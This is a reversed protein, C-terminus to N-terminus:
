SSAHVTKINFIIIDGYGVQKPILWPLKWNFDSPLKSDLKPMDWGILQHSRPVVALISDKPAKLESLSIWTTYISLPSIACIPCHWGGEMGFDSKKNKAKKLRERREDDLESERYVSSGM